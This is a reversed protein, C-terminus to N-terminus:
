EYSGLHRCWVVSAMVIRSKLGLRRTNKTNHVTGGFHGDENVINLNDNDYEKVKFVHKSM